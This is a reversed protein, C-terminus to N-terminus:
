ASVEQLLDELAQLLPLVPPVTHIACAAGDLGRLFFYLAGGLHTDPAYAAGMRSQLLRHLALMYLAAQVDYRHQLMAQSLAADTYAAADVGLHNTKYDMVWYRGQHEFVLDAFGMLMGHLSRQPLAPRTQGPLIFAHCLADVRAAPLQALPLWFEMEALRTTIQALSCDIVPLPHHVVASLWTVVDQAEDGRGAHECRRLLRQALPSQGDASLAFDEGELWELQDHIFNGVLEGRKFRHWVPADAQAKLLSPKAPLLELAMREDDAPRLAAVPLVASAKSSAGRVLATFSGIGWSRDFEGDYAAPMHLPTAQDRALLRTSDVPLELRQLSMQPCQGALAQLASWWTSAPAQEGGNLLYGSAGQHNVCRSSNGKRLAGLGLWLTHRPRTLAVYFLRLDERLREADALQKDQESANLKLLKSGDAQPLRVLEDSYARFDAAFPLFVVPYELGKSKHVTVVKVLDADSELRVIQEEVGAGPDEIQTALWRILAQEGELTASANQLLEALHLVNTLRREGGVDALWRAPLQMRHLSQRLMALVGQRQWVGHLHRLQESYADFAEDNAALWALEPLSLGMMRTALGARVVRVDLPAAVARLWLLLDQAEDSGFVSEQDSLYVSAVGRRQLQHRVAAAERGTRVLVAMDRPRLRQLDQGDQAFGVEPDNLWQVVQQACAQAMHQRLLESSVPEGEADHWLVHMAPVVQGRQVFQEKRGHARVPDFPLPNTSAGEQLNRFMFAGPGPRAEAQAFWQNVSQVVAHTSRYNVDLVYHRGQTAQRARLYSYIDAGRFGYISQKPDGILLLASEPHNDATSYIRDFLRYQLPSTDQFEDILAVPYQALISSRLNVANESSLAVDLRHLMDAFGFTGAQRKLWQLRAQVQATAHLRIAVSSPPLSDLAALLQQLQAFEVPLLVDMTSGKCAEAMGEPSLRHRAAETLALPTNLPDQAWAGLAQLWGTYRAPQLKRKDWLYAQGDLQADLWHQLRQAKDAWGQALTQLTGEHNQQAQQVCQALSGAGHQADVSDRSLAQMDQLLASVGSWVDLVAELQTGNLPYCQQRWYDHCADLLRQSEDSELTEDFLNGSDFAHERLMRQCWADITFIAADDMCEAAMALRWAAHERPTGEPYAHILTQLFSDHAAVAQQGRFCAVAEVLRVRIRDSLERTAARTFTMVLIDAPMLPRGFGNADGHGLVLRLYLAAITWTKGTGASAEILRSGHLPFSAADLIQRESM